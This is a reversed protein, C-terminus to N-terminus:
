AGPSHDVPSTGEEIETAYGQGGINLYDGARTGRFIWRKKWSAIGVSVMAERIVRDAIERTVGKVNGGCLWDHVFAPRRDIKFVLRLCFWCWAPVSYSDCIFGVPMTIHGAPGFQGAEGLGLSALIPSYYRLIALLQYEAGGELDRSDLFDLFLSAKV